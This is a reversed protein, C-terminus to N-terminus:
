VTWDEVKLGPVDAFHKPNNTVVLAALSLAHAALLRDFNARKFPLAAYARAAGADFDVLKVESIFRELVAMPPPKGLNSGLALEAFTITSIALSGADQAAVHDSLKPHSDAFLFICIDTDLFIVRESYRSGALGM